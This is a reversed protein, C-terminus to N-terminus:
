SKLSNCFERDEVADKECDAADGTGKTAQELCGTKFVEVNELCEAKSEPSPAPSGLVSTVVLLLLTFFLFITTIKM